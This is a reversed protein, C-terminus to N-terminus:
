VTAWVVFCTELVVKPKNDCVGESVSVRVSLNFLIGGKAIEPLFFNYMCLFFEVLLSFCVLVLLWMIIDAFSSGVAYYRAINTVAIAASFSIIKVAIILRYTCQIKTNPIARLLSFIFFLLFLYLFPKLCV